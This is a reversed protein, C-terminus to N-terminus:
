KQRCDHPDSGAWSAVEEELAGLLDRYAQRVRPRPDFGGEREWWAVATPSFGLAKAIADRSLGAKERIERRRTPPPHTIRKERILAIVSANADRAPTMTM